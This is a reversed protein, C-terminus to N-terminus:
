MWAAGALRLGPACPLGAMEQMPLPTDDVQIPRLGTPFDVILEVDRLPLRSLM